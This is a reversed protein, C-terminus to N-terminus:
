IHVSDINSTYGFRVKQRACNKVERRIGNIMGNVRVVGGMPSHCDYETIRHAMEFQHRVLGFSHLGCSDSKVDAWPVQRYRGDIAGRTV